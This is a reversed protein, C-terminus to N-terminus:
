LPLVKEETIELDETNTLGPDSGTVELKATASVLGVSCVLDLNCVM